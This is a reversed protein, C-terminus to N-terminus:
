QCECRGIEGYCHAPGGSKTPSLVVTIDTKSWVKERLLLAALLATIFFLGSAGIMLYIYDSQEIYAPLSAGGLGGLTSALGGVLFLTSREDFDDTLGLALAIYM